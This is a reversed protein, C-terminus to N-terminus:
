SRRKGVTRNAEQNKRDNQLQTLILMADLYNMKKASNFDVNCYDAVAKVVNNTAMAMKLPSSKGGGSSGFNRLEVRQMLEFQRLVYASAQIYEGVLSFEYGECWRAVWGFQGQAYLERAKLAAYLEVNDISAIRYVDKGGRRIWGNGFTCRAIEQIFAEEEVNLKDRIDRNIILQVAKGCARRHMWKKFRNFLKM